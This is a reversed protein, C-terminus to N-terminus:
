WSKNEVRKQIRYEAFEERLFVNDKSGVPRPTSDPPLYEVSSGVEIVVDPVVRDFLLEKLERKILFCEDFFVHTYSSERLGAIQGGAIINSTSKKFIARYQDRMRRVVQGDFGVVLAGLSAAVYCAYTKGAQRQEDFIYDINDVFAIKLAEYQFAHCKIPCKELYTQLESELM